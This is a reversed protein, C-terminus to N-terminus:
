QTVNNQKISGARTKAWFTVTDPWILLALSLSDNDDTETVSFPDEKHVNVSGLPLKLSIKGADVLNGIVKNNVEVPNSKL